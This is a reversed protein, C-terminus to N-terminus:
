KEWYGKTVMEVYGSVILRKKVNKYPLKKKICVFYVDNADPGYIIYGDVKRLLNYVQNITVTRKFVVDIKVRCKKDNYTNSATVFLGKNTYTFLFVILLFEAFVLGWSVYPMKLLNTITKFLKYVKKDSKDKKINKVVNEYIDPPPEPIEMFDYILEIKSFEEIEKKLQPDKDAAKELIIKDRKSITGNVYLPVLERLMEYNM